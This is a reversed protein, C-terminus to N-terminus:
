AKKNIKLINKKQIKLPLHVNTINNLKQKSFKNLKKNLGVSENQIYNLKQLYNIESTQIMVFDEQQFYEGDSLNSRTELSEFNEDNKFSQQKEQKKIEIPHTNKQIFQNLQFFENEKVKNRKQIEDDDKNDLLICKGFFEESLTQFEDQDNEFYSLGYNDEDVNIEKKNEQPSKKTKRQIPKIIIREQNSM